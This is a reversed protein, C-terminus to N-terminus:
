AKKRMRCIFFGDTDHIHPWLTAMGDEREGAPGPLAFAETRFEPHGELFASVVDGNERPLVTCTSYLLVGGPKVYRSLNSLIAMQIEPLRELEAPDKYRIDPKKRIVGLGSCPVDALVADASEALGPRFERGDMLATEAISIGLRAAGEKILALKHLHIDCALISGRNGMEMAAAFTKGGPAACGDIVRGGPKLGAALVALRAAPDQIYMRGEAFAPLREVNGAGRLELCGPLWPHLSVETGAAELEARVTEPEAKLPNVQAYVPPAANDAALLKEAGEEGLTLCMQKVFWLPHSYRLSLYEERDERPPEPLTGASRSVARLVANVLGAARPGAHRRTLNVSENVAASDPIRDMFAIQCVGLRLIDLVQPELRDPKVTCFRSIWFDLLARNQIVLNCLRTALAADRGDLEARGMTNRLVGESWAGRKRWAALAQYALERADAKREGSM